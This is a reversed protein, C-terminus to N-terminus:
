LMFPSCCSVPHTPSDPYLFPAPSSAGFCFSLGLYALNQIWQNLLLSYSRKTRLLLLSLEYRFGDKIKQLSPNVQRFILDNRSKWIVWCMLIIIEMFFPVSLQNRFSQLVQFPDLNTDVQVNLWGWCDVAFPCHLFLHLLSEEVSSTCLVCSYDQLIM